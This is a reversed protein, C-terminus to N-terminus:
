WRQQRIPRRLRRAQTPSVPLRYNPAIQSARPCKSSRWDGLERFPTSDHSYATSLRYVLYNRRLQSALFRICGLDISEGFLVRFPPVSFFLWHLVTCCALQTEKESTGGCALPPISPLNTTPRTHTELNPGTQSLSTLSSFKEQKAKNAAWNIIIGVSPGLLPMAATCSGGSGPWEPVHDTRWPHFEITTVNPAVTYGVSTM